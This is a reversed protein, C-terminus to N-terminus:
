REVKLDNYWTKSEADWQVWCGCVGPDNMVLNEAADLYWLMASATESGSHRLWRGFSMKPAASHVSRLAAPFRDYAELPSLEHSIM